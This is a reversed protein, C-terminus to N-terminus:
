VWLSTMWRSAGSTLCVRILSEYWYNSSTTDVWSIGFRGGRIYSSEMGGFVYTGTGEEKIVGRPQRGKELRIGMLKDSLQGSHILASFLTTGNPLSSMGDQGLGLVGSRASNRFNTGSSSTALGFTLSASVSASSGFTVLDTGIKGRASSGDAYELRFEGEVAAFTTSSTSDYATHNNLYCSPCDTSFVFM